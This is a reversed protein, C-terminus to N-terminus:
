KKYLLNTLRGSQVCKDAVLEAVIDDLFGEEKSFDGVFCDQDIGDVSTQAVDLVLLDPVLPHAYSGVILDLDDLLIGLTLWWDVM